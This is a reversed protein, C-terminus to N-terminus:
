NERQRGHCRKKWLYDDFLQEINTNLSPFFSSNYRKSNRLKNDVKGFLWAFVGIIIWMSVISVTNAWGSGLNNLLVYLLSPLTICSIVGLCIILVRSTKDHKKKWKINLERGEKLDNIYKICEEKTVSYDKPNCYDANGEWFALDLYTLDTEYRNFLGM